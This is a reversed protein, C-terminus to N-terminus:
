RLDHVMVYDNDGLAAHCRICGTPKGAALPRGKSTYMAWFWDGAVPNYGKVKYMVTFNKIKGGKTQAVKVQITGYNLPAKTSSLGAQNVYVQNYPGHPSRAWQLGQYTPWQDWQAYPSINTIYDWLAHAQPPPMQKPGGLSWAPALALGLALLASTLLRM